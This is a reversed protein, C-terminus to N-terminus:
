KKALEEEQKVHGDINCEQYIGVSFMDDSDQEDFDLNTEFSLEFCDYDDMAEKVERELRKEVKKQNDLRKFATSIMLKIRNLQNVESAGPDYDVAVINSEPFQRRLEKIMGKGTVHNPLCAFPQMCIINPVGSEILEVMEATLFWGEGTTNGLQLVKEAGQALEQIPKPARAAFKPNDLLLSTAYSRYKELLWIGMNSVKASKASGGLNDRKFNANYFCYLFFDLLGPMVAEGGEHEIVGIADNNADPHFKVLIEGVLGVQPKRDSDDIPIADFDAVIQETMKKFNFKAHNKLQECLKDNWHQYVRNAEGVNIEYPRVRLLCALMLDGWVAAKVGNHALTPTIKLGPNGELGSFNLSVVPVQELGADKLAKRLFAVYNTARCGGGTQTIFISTNDPDCQGSLFANVLQGVVVITPYCADNNVYKLGTEIDAASAENVIHLNYGNGQFAAEILNFHIPSMQPAIITHTKRMEKTFLVREQVAEKTSDLRVSHKSREDLAAKLSRVRIRATGLSSIEDIKLVTYIKEKAQLIEQVQDTTVADLGCGFSNLQIMDLAPKRAVYGASEYLRTHYVWQDVVRIPRPLHGLHAVSDETLVAFGQSIIMDPIGHNVEPDIHYPRGALVIGHQNNEDLWAVVRNGEDRIDQKYKAAEEFALKTAREIDKKPIGFEKFVKQMQDAFAREDQLQVFPYLFTIDPERVADMNNYIVEPYSTVIPCNYHNGASDFEKKAYPICPYFITKIGKDLLDVIHGHVLKAPYCVSESPITDMGKEFLRHNSRGSLVVRFGLDTFFTHWLPYDEYMNLVRPLGITGRKAQNEQLSRYAFTRKYKYEFLNPLPSKSAEIGAGRECRNGSVFYQGNSFHTTTLQCANTCLACRSLVSDFTLAELDKQSIIDCYEGNWRDCALLASGFAGMIGAIDPRIVEVGAILEFCRLIADNHFTGGQVVIKEGMQKPDRLKIVKYLANRVVSYSLGASIDGVSAGEKQAQKVRSNMFVTCRTGLDVPQEGKLAEVAFEAPEMGLSEAFTQIFSGCGSSCAENLMISEIVGNHIKMCKMDQGGIDIIFEVGPCFFDAARYHALTEIEGMPLNFAAKILSEGYGTVCANAIKVNLPLVRYVEDLVDIACQVTNGTNRGYYTHLLQGDDDIVACKITTSGIDLGLFVHTKVEQMNGRIAKHENHRTNFAIRDAETEFLTPLRTIEEDIPPADLLRQYITDLLIEDGDALKAAGVAVFVQANEPCTFTNGESGFTEEFRYRLQPLFHLPGGLFVINGRIPRGQALGAITQTVVAQFVSAALDEKKAGENFLPQMDSKAFVGCRSAIPYLTEYNEALANLGTADTKLLSAMQDIFAGTGGACTGNMRQELTPRMYTIKADEGGLEIIVDTDPLTDNVAETGALVEQVFNIDMINAVSLGASGTIAIQAKKGACQISIDRFLKELEGRIDSRHRRYESYILQNDELLAAKITTSGVDLGLKYSPMREGTRNLLFRSIRYLIWNSYIM